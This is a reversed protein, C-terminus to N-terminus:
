FGGQCTVNKNNDVVEKVKLTFTGAGSNDVFKESYTTVFANPLTIERITIGTPGTVTVTVEAYCKADPKVMAWKPLNLTDDAVVLGRRVKGIVTFGIALDKSRDNSDNPTDTDFIIKDVTDDSLEITGVASSNIKVCLSM